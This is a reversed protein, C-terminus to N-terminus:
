PLIKTITQLMQSRAENATKVMDNHASLLQSKSGDGSNQAFDSNVFHITDKDIDVHTFAVLELDIDLNRDLTDLDVKTISSISKLIKAIDRVDAREGTSATIKVDGTITAVTVSSLDHASKDLWNRFAQFGTYRPADSAGTTESPTQRPTRAM